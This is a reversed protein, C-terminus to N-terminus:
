PGDINEGGKLSITLIPLPYKVPNNAVSRISDFKLKKDVTDYLQIYGLPNTSIILDM